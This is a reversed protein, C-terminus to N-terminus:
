GLRQEKLKVPIGEKEDMEGGVRGSGAGAGPRAPRQGEEKLGAICGGTAGRLGNPQPTCGQPM